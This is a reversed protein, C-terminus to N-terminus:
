LILSKGQEATEVDPLIDCNDWIGTKLTESYARPLCNDNMLDHTTQFDYEFSHHEFRFPNEDVIMYWVKTTGDNAPMGIVGANLWYKDDRVDSFPLGCHGGFIVDVNAADFNQQKIKWDTSRFVYGSTEFYSGHVVLCRKGGFDFTLHDPLTELWQKSAESVKRQAYPFWQKSFIDCRSDDDFNCGCDEADDRLQIEVNGLITHIGWDKVTQLCQEPEACYAVIDGTCIINSASINEAKAIEMMKELAQFNSYIGGFILMKGSLNGIHQTTKQM